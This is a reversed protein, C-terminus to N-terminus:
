RQQPVNRGAFYFIGALFKFCIISFFQNLFRFTSPLNALDANLALFHPCANHTPQQASSLPASGRALYAGRRVRTGGTCGVPRQWPARGSGCGRPRPHPTPPPSVM